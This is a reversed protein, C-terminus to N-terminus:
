VQGSGCKDAHREEPESVAGIIIVVDLAKFVKDASDISMKKKGTEWYIISRKTVGAENALRQQSKGSEIRKKKLFQGLDM